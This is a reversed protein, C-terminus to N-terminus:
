DGARAKPTGDHGIQAAMYILGLSAVALGALTLAEIRILGIVGAIALVSTVVAALLAAMRGHIGSLPRSAPLVALIVLIIGGGLLGYGKARSSAILTLAGLVVAMVGVVLRTFKM